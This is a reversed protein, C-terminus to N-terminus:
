GYPKVHVYILISFSSLRITPKSMVPSVLFGVSQTFPRTITSFGFPFNRIQKSGRGNFLMYFGFVKVKGASLFNKSM